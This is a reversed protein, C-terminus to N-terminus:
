NVVTFWVTKNDYLTLTVTSWVERLKDEWSFADKDSMQFFCGIRTAAKIAHLALRGRGKPIHEMVDTCYGYDACVVDPLNWLCARILPYHAAVHEDLANTAIDLGVVSEYGENLFASLAAGRGCGFDIVSDNMRIGLSKIAAKVQDGAPSEKARYERTRWLGSWKEMEKVEVQDQRSSRDPMFPAPRQQRDPDNYRGADFAGRLLKKLLVSRDRRNRVSIEHCLKDIDAPLANLLESFRV